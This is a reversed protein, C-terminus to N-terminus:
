LDDGNNLLLWSLGAFDEAKFTLYFTESIKEGMEQQILNQKSEKQILITSM